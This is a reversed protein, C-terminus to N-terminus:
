IISLGCREPSIGLTAAGAIYPGPKPKGETVDDATVYGKQPIPLSCKPLALSAYFRSASLVTVVLNCLSMTQIPVQRLLPGNTRHWRVSSSGSPSGANYIELSNIIVENLLKQAGNLVQPGLGGRQNAVLLEFRM